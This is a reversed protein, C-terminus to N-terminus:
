RQRGLSADSSRSTRVSNEPTTMKLRDGVSSTKTANAPPPAQAKKQVAQPNVKVGTAGQDQALALAAGLLLALGLAWWSTMDNKM